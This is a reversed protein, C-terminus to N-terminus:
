GLSPSQEGLVNATNLVLVHDLAHIYIHDSPSGWALGKRKAALM